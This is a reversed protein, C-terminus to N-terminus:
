FLHVNQQTIEAKLTKLSVQFPRLLQFDLQCYAQRILPFAGCM